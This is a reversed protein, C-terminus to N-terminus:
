AELGWSTEASVVLRVANGGAASPAAPSAWTRRTPWASRITPMGLKPLASVIPKTTRAAVAPMTCYKESRLGIRTLESPPEGSSVGRTAILVSLGAYM